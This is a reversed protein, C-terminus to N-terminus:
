SSIYFKQLTQCYVKVIKIRSQNFKDNQVTVAQQTLFDDEEESFYPVWFESHTRIEDFSHPFNQVSPFNQQLTWEYILQKKIDDQVKNRGDENLTHESYEHFALESM